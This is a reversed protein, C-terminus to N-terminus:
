WYYNYNACANPRGVMKSITEFCENMVYIKNEAVVPVDIIVLEDPKVAYMRNDVVLIVSYYRM